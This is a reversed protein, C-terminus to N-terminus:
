SMFDYKQPNERRLNAAIKLMEREDQISLHYSEQILRRAKEHLESATPLPSKGSPGAGFQWFQKNAYHIDTYIRYCNENFQSAIQELLIPNSCDVDRLAEVARRRVGENYDNTLKQLPEVVQQGGIKRLSEIWVFSDYAFGLSAISETAREDGIATLAIITATQINEGKYKLLPILLEVASSARLIGLTRVCEAMEYECNDRTFEGNAPKKYSIIEWLLNLYDVLANIASEDGCKGLCECAFRRKWHLPSNLAEILVPTLRHEKVIDVLAMSDRQKDIDDGLYIQRFDDLLYNRLYDAYPKAPAFVTTSPFYKVSQGYYLFKRASNQRVVEDTASSAICLIADLGYRLLQEAAERPRYRNGEVFNWLVPLVLPNNVRKIADVAKIQTFLDDRNLLQTLRSLKNGAVLKEFNPPGFLGM